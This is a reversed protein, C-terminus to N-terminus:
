QMSNTTWITNGQDTKSPKSPRDEMGTCGNQLFPVCMSIPQQHGKQRFLLQSERNNWNAAWCKLTYPLWPYIGKQEAPIPLLQEPDGRLWCFRRGGRGRQPLLGAQHGTNSLRSRSVRRDWINEAVRTRYKLEGQSKFWCLISAM